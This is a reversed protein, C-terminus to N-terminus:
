EGSAADSRSAGNPLEPKKFDKKLGELDLVENMTQQIRTKDWSDRGQLHTALVMAQEVRNLVEMIMKRMLPKFPAVLVKQLTTLELQLLVEEILANCEAKKSKLTSLVIAYTSFNPSRPRPTEILGPLMKPFAEELKLSMEQEDPVGKSRSFKFANDRLDWVSGAVEFARAHFESRKEYNLDVAFYVMESPQEGTKETLLNEAAEVRIAIDRAFQESRAYVLVGESDFLQFSEAELPLRTEIGLADEEVVLDVSRCGMGSLCFCILLCFRFRYM